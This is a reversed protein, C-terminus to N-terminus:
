GTKRPSTRPIAHYEGTAKLVKIEGYYIPTQSGDVRIIYGIPEAFYLGYREYDDDENDIGTREGGLIIAQIVKELTALDSFIHARSERRLLKQVQLTNPLHKDIM